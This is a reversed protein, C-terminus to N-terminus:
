LTRVPSPTVTLRVSVQDSSSVQIVLPTHEPLEFEVVKRPSNCSRVGQYDTVPLLTGQSLVDIWVASDVSVRYKGAAPVQLTMLGAFAPTALVKKVGSNALTVRDQMTLTLQYLRNPVLAPASKAEIGAALSEASSAFVAREHSVDWKFGDCLEQALASGAANGLIATLLAARALSRLRMEM